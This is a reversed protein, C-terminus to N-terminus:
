ALAADDRVPAAGNRTPSQGFAARMSKRPGGDAVEAATAEAFVRVTGSAAGVAAEKSAGTAAAQRDGDEGVAAGHGEGGSDGGGGNGDTEGVSESVGEGVGEDGLGESAARLLEDLQCGARIHGEGDLDAAATAAALEAAARVRAAAVEAEIKPTRSRRTISIRHVRATHKQLNGQSYLRETCYPCAHRQLGIHVASIHDKLDAPHRYEKTQCHPCMYTGRETRTQRRLSATEAASPSSARALSPSPDPKAPRRGGRRKQERAGAADAAGGGDDMYPSAHDSGAADDIENWRWGTALAAAADDDDVHSGNGGEHGSGVAGAEDDDYAGGDERAAAATAGWADGGTGHEGAAGNRGEGGARSSPQGKRPGGKGYSRPATRRARGAGGAVGGGLTFSQESAAKRMSRAAGGAPSAGAAASASAFQTPDPWSPAGLDEDDEPAAQATSAESSQASLAEANDTAWAEDSILTSDSQQPKLARGIGNGPVAAYGQRLVPAPGRASRAVAAGAASSGAAMATRPSGAAAAPAAAKASLQARRPAHTQLTRASGSEQAERWRTSSVRQRKPAREAAPQQGLGAVDTSNDEHPWEATDVERSGEGDASGARSGVRLLAATAGEVEGEDCAGAAALAGEAETGTATAGTDMVQEGVLAALMNLAAARAAADQGPEVAVACDGPRASGDASPAAMAASLSALPGVKEAM